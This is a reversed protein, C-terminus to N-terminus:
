MAHMGPNGNAKLLSQRTPSQCTTEKDFDPTDKKKIATDNRRSRRGDRGTTDFRIM